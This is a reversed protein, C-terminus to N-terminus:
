SAASADSGYAAAVKELSGALARRPESQKFAALTSDRLRPGAEHVLRTVRFLKEAEASAAVAELVVFDTVRGGRLSCSVSLAPSRV